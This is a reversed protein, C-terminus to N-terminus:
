CVDDTHERFQTRSMVKGDAWWQGPALGEVDAAEFRGIGRYKVVISRPQTEQRGIVFDVSYFGAASLKRAPQAAGHWNQPPAYLSIELEGTVSRPPRASWGDLVEPDAGDTEDAIHQISVEEMHAAGSCPRLLARLEGQPGQGVAVLQLEPPSCGATLLALAVAAGASWLM